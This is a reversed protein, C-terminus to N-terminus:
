PILGLHVLGFFCTSIHMAQVFTGRKLEASVCELPMLVIEVEEGHDWQPLSTNMLGTAIVVHTFNTQRAPDPAVKAIERFAEGSYGTEERLERAAVAESSRDEVGFRGGPLELLVQRFAHRYQRVLVLDGGATVPFVTVWSPYEFVYYPHILGGSATVCSDARLRLWQDEILYNSETVRWPQLTM